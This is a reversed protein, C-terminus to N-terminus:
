IGLQLSLSEFEPRFRSALDLLLVRAADNAHGHGANWWGLSKLKADTSFKKCDARGYSKPLELGDLRLRHKVAGITELSWCAAERGVKATETSIDFREFSITVDDVCWAAIWKDTEVGEETEWTRILAHTSLDYAAWGTKKGPDFALVYTM